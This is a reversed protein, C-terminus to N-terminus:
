FKLNPHTDTFIINNEWLAMFLNALSPCIEGGDGCWDTAFLLGGEFFFLQRGLCFMFTGFNVTQSTLRNDKHLIYEAAQYRRQHGIITYLSSIDATVLLM